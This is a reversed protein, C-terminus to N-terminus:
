DCAELVVELFRERAHVENWPFHGCRQLVVVGLDGIVTQLPDAIARLPRPDHAGHILLVPCIIRRGEELLSGSALLDRAETWVAHNLERDLDAVPEPDIAEFTESGETGDLAADADADFLASGVMVLNRVLAPERAALLFGLVAGWSHGVLTVPEDDSRSLQAALEAVQGDVTRATQIPELVGRHQGLARALEVASGPAGPGGHVVAVQHPASGHLRVEGIEDTAM